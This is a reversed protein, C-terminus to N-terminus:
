RAGRRLAEPVSVSGPVSRAPRTQWRRLVAYSVIFLVVANLCHWLFHTGSPMQGCLPEDLTRLTLSVAFVGAAILLWRGFRRAPGPATLRIALGFAVLAALAPIYGGLTAREGGIMVLILTILAASALYLPVALLAWAWRVDWMWRTTVAVGVVIFLLISGSDLAATATTATTHFALSCLGVIGLLVPLLWVSVPV